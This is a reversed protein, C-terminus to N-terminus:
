ITSLSTLFRGDQQILSLSIAKTSCSLQLRNYCDSQIGKKMRITTLRPSTSKTARIRASPTLSSPEPCNDCFAEIQSEALGIWMASSAVHPRLIKWRAIFSQEGYYHRM